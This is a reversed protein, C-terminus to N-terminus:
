ASIPPRFPPIIDSSPHTLSATLFVATFVIGLPDTSSPVLVTVKCTAHCDCCDGAKDKQAKEGKSSVHSHEEHHEHSHEAAASNNEHMSHMSPSNSTSEHCGVMAASAVGQLLLSCALLCACIFQFVSQKM